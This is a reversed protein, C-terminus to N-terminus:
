EKKAIPRDPDSIWDSWSGAYLKVNKFGAERLSLVNPCATVGSGCYVIIEEAGQLREFREMQSKVPRFRGEADLNGKWFWHQAGPIHGAKKDIPETAGRYRAEERSDILVVKGAETRQKNALIYDATVMLEERLRPVFGAPSVPTDPLEATVPYGAAKWGAFGGNLVCAEDHGMYMLLWWLRSAMAGGQDDYGIVRKGASVGIRSLKEALSAIDPLPHRGGHGDARKASSLDQELDLYFAGPIHGEMYASRGSIPEGLNFRCDIVIVSGEQLMSYLREPSILHRM